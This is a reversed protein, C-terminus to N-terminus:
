MLTLVLVVVLLLLLLLWESAVHGGDSARLALLYTLSYTLLCSM